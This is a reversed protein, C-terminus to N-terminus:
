SRRERYFRDLVMDSIIIMSIAVTAFAVSYVAGMRLDGGNLYPYMRLTMTIVQGGGILLTIVYQSMSILITLVMGAAIGPLLFPLLVLRFRNFWSAGLIQAQEEWGSGLRSYSATLTRIMYPLTPLMHSIVVGAFSDTLGIVIFTRHLGIMIVVPPVLVPLMLIGEVITKGRFEHRGLASAAPIAILLNLLGTSIAVSVSTILSYVGYPYFERWGDLSLKEPVLSPWAWGSSLSAAILLGLPLVAMIVLIFLITWYFFSKGKM